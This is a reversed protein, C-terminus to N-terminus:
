RSEFFNPDFILREQEDASKANTASPPSAVATAPHAVPRDAAPPASQTTSAAKMAAVAAVLNSATDSDCTRVYFYGFSRNTEETAGDERTRATICQPNSPLCKLTVINGSVEPTSLAKYEAKAIVTEGWTRPPYGRAHRRWIGIILFQDGGSADYTNRDLIRDDVDMYASVPCDLSQELLSKATRVDTDNAAAPNAVYLLSALAGVARCGALAGRFDRNHSLKM